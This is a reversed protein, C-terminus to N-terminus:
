PSGSLASRAMRACMRYPTSAFTLAIASRGSVLAKSRTFYAGGISVGAAIEAQGIDAALEHRVRAFGPGRRRYRMVPGGRKGRVWAHRRLITSNLLIRLAHRGGFQHANLFVKGCAVARVAIIDVSHHLLAVQALVVVRSQLHLDRTIEKHALFFPSNVDNGFLADLDGGSAKADRINADHGARFGGLLDKACGGNMQM